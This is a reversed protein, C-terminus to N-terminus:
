ELAIHDACYHRAGLASRDREFDLARLAPRFLPALKLRPSNNRTFDMDVWSLRTPVPMLWTAPIHFAMVFSTIVSHEPVDQAISGGVADGALQEPHPFVCSSDAIVAAGVECVTFKANLIKRVFLKHFARFFEMVPPPM